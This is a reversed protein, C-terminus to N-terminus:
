CSYDIQDKPVDPHYGYIRCHSEPNLLVRIRSAVVRHDPDIIEIQELTPSDFGTAILQALEADLASVAIGYFVAKWAGKLKLATSALQEGLHQEHEALRYREGAIETPLYLTGPNWKTGHLHILDVNTEDYSALAVSLADDVVVDWNTNICLLPEGRSVLHRAVIDAFASRVSLEHARESAELEQCIASKVENLMQRM